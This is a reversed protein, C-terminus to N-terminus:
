KVMGFFKGFTHFIFQRLNAPIIRYPLRIALNRLYELPTIFGISLLQRQLRLETKLMTWGGRREFAGSGIRYYVLPEALNGVRAGRAMMRAFLWYDEMKGGGGYGGCSLVFDRRFVVTPHNFPDRLKAAQRIAIPNTPPTRRNGPQAPNDSFELMGAGLLDLKRLLPIEKAFREPTSIDDADARAVVNHEAFELGFDLAAALGRNKNLRHVEVEQKAIETAQAIARELEAPVPGDQVLIVQNPRLSQNKTVSELADSFFDPEDGAFVSMLVTFNPVATQSELEAHAPSTPSLVAKVDHAVPTNALISATSEPRNRAQHLGERAYALLEKSDSSCCLLKSWRLLTKGGYLLKEEPRLGSSDRFTWIKNRVENSFRAGPSAASNGFKATKHVVISAPVYLGVRQRLLRSTYEFDDNWLFYAAIPLGETRIARADMLISVFSATRIPVCDIAAANKRVGRTLFPRRRPRNMPHERGDTWVAQSALLAPTGRYAARARLLEALATPTPVTDDDMIWVLDAKHTAVARAIGAAFGGAGGTNEDLRVYDTVAPHTQAVAPTNDTSANDILLIQDLPRTQSKLGDLCERLLEARNYAVVVATIVLNQRM